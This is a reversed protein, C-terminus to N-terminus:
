YISYHFMFKKKYELNRIGKNYKTEGLNYVQAINGVTAKPYIEILHKLFRIGATANKRANYLDKINKINKNYAIATGFALQYLGYSPDNPNFVEPRFNSEVKAIALCIEVEVKEQKAIEIILKVIKEKELQKNVIEGKELQKNNINKSSVIIPLLLIIIIIIIILIFKLIIKM